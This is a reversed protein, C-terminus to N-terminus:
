LGPLTPQPPSTLAIHVRSDSPPFNEMRKFLHHAASLVGPDAVFQVHGRPNVNFVNIMGPTMPTRSFTVGAFRGEADKDTRFLVDYPSNHETDLPPFVMTGSIMHNPTAYVMSQIAQLWRGPMVPAAEHKWPDVGQLGGPFSYPHYTITLPSLPQIM